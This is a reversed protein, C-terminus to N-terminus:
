RKDNGKRQKRLQTAILRGLKQHIEIAENLRYSWTDGINGIRLSSKGAIEAFFGEKRCGPAVAKFEELDESNRELDAFINCDSAEIYLDPDFDNPGYFIGNSAMPALKENCDKNPVIVVPKKDYWGYGGCRLEPEKIKTELGKGEQLDVLFQYLKRETAQWASFSGDDDKFWELASDAQEFLSGDKSCEEGAKALVCKGCKQKHFVCLGCKTIGLIKGISTAAVKAESMELNERHHVISVALAAEPTTALKKVDQETLM